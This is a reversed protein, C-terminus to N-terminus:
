FPPFAVNLVIKLVLQRTLFFLMFAVHKSLVKGVKTNGPGM